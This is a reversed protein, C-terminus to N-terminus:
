AAYLGKAEAIYHAWVVANAGGVGGIELTEEARALPALLLAAALVLTGIINRM